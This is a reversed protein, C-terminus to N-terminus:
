ELRLGLRRAQLRPAALAPPPPRRSGARPPGAGAVRRYVEFSESPTWSSTATAITPGPGRCADGEPALLAPRQRSRAARPVDPEPQRGGGGVLHARLRSGREPVAAHRPGPAHAMPGPAVQELDVLATSWREGGADEALRWRGLHHSCAVVGPGCPRPSGCGTSSTASARRSRSSIARRRGRAPRRGRSPALPSQHPLDRLAVQRQGLAHPDPDAPPLDPAPGDRGADRDIPVLARPQARLPARGARAVELGQAHALLVRAPAVADSLRPVPAGDVEVGVASRWGQTAIRTVPDM